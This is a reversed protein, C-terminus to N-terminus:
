AAHPLVRAARRAALWAEIEDAPWGSARKGLKVPAPFDGAAIGRYITASSKGTAQRVDPLRLMRCPASQLQSDM